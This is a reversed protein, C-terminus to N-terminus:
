LNAQFHGRGVPDSVVDFYDYRVTHSEPGKKLLLHLLPLSITDKGNLFNRQSCRRGPFRTLFAHRMWSSVPSPTVSIMSFHKAYEDHTKKSLFAWRKKSLYDVALKGLPEYDNVKVQVLYLTIKKAATHHTLSLDTRVNDVDYATAAICDAPM